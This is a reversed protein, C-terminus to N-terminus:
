ERGGATAGLLRSRLHPPLKYFLDKVRQRLRIRRLQVVVHGKRSLPCAHDTLTVRDTALKDKYPEPFGEFDYHTWHTQRMWELVDQILLLGPSHDGEEPDFATFYCHLTNADPLFLSATVPEGNRCLAICFPAQRGLTEPSKLLGNLFTRFPASRVAAGVLARQDLWSIKWDIMTDIITSAMPHTHDIITLSLEGERALRSRKRKLNRKGSKSTAVGTSQRVDIMTAYAGASPTQVSFASPLWATRTPVSPFLLVDAQGQEQLFRLLLGTLRSPEEKPCVLIGGYGAEPFSACCWQRVFGALTCDAMPAMLVMKGGRWVTVLRLRNQPFAELWNLVWHPTCFFSFGDGCSDALSRWAPVIPLLSQTSDFVRFELHKADPVMNEPRDTLGVNMDVSQCASRVKRHIGAEM